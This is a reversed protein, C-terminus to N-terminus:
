NEEEYSHWQNDKSLKEIYFLKSEDFSFSSKDIINAFKNGVNLHYKPGSPQQEWRGSVKEVREM